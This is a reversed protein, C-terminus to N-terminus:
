KRENQVERFRRLLEELTEIDEKRFVIPNCDKGRKSVLLYDEGDVGKHMTFFLNTSMKKM